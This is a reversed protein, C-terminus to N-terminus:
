LELGQKNYKEVLAKTYEDQKTASPSPELQEVEDFWQELKAQLDKKSQPAASSSTHNPTASSQITLLVEINGQCQDLYETVAQPILLIGEELDLKFTKSSM